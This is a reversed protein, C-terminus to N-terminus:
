LLDLWIPIYILKELEANKEAESLLDLWIPIYIASAQM